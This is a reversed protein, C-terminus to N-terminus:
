EGLVTIGTEEKVDYNRPFKGEAAWLKLIDALYNLKERIGFDLLARNKSIFVEQHTDELSMVILEHAKTIM